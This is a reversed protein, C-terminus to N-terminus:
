KRLMLTSSWREKIDESYHVEYGKERLYVDKLFILEKIRSVFDIKLSMMNIRCLVFGTKCFKKVYLPVLMYDSYFIPPGGFFYELPLNKENISLNGIVPGGQTIERLNHYVIPIGKCKRELNFNTPTEFIM